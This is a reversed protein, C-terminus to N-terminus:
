CGMCRGLVSQGARMSLVGLSPLMDLVVLLIDSMLLEVVTGIVSEASGVAWGMQKCVRVCARVCARVM